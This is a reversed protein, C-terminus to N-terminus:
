PTQPSAPSLCSKKEIRENRYFYNYFSKLSSVKRMIGRETNYVDENNVSPHCKLYEMYEELDTVTLQELVSLPINEGM